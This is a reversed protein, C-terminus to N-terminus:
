CSATVPQGPASFQMHRYVGHVGNTFCRDNPDMRRKECTFPGPALLVCPRRIRLTRINSTSKQGPGTAHGPAAQGRLAGQTGTDQPAPRTPRRARARRVALSSGYGPSRSPSSAQRLCAGSADQRRGPGPFQTGLHVCPSGLPLYLPGHGAGTESEALKAFQAKFLRVATEARNPWHPEQVPRLLNAAMSGASVSLAQRTSLWTQLPQRQSASSTNLGTDPRKRLSSMMYPTRLRQGFM